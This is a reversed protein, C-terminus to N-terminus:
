CGSWCRQSSLYLALHYHFGRTRIHIEAACAWKVIVSEQDVEREFEDCVMKAFQERSSVKVADAQSYIVLYVTRANKNATTRHPDPQTPLDDELDAVPRQEMDVNDINDEEAANWRAIGFKGSLMCPSTEWGTLNFDSEDDSSDLIIFFINKM